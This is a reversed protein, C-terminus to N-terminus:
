LELLKMLKQKERKSKTNAIDFSSKGEENLIHPDAGGAMLAKVIPLNVNRTALHLATNGEEFRANVAIGITALLIEVIEASGSEVAAMLPTVNRITLALNVDAKKALLSKIVSILSKKDSRSNITRFCSIASFLAHEGAQDQANVQINDVRLLINVLDYCQGDIASVLPTTGNYDPINVDANKELLAIIIKTYNKKDEASAKFIYSSIAQHLPTNDCEDRANVDIGPTDLLLEVIKEHGRGAAYILPTYGQTSEAINVDAKKALLAKIIKISEEQKASNKKSYGFIAGHLASLGIDTQANVEIGEIELLIDVIESCGQSAALMLATMGDTDHVNVDAHNALLTHIITLFIKREAQNGKAFYLIASLLPTVANSACSVDAGKSILFPIVSPFKNRIALILPNFTDSKLLDPNKEFLLKLTRLLDPTEARGGHRSLAKDLLDNGLHDKTHIDGGNELLLKLLEYKWELAAYAVLTPCFHSKWLSVEPTNPDGGQALLLEFLSLNGEPKAKLAFAISRNQLTEEKAIIGQHICRTLYRALLLGKGNPLLKNAAQEYLAFTDEANMSHLRKLTAVANIRPAAFPNLSSKGDIKYADPILSRLNQVDKYLDKLYKKAEIVQQEDELDKDRDYFLKEAHRIFANNAADAGMRNIEAVHALDILEVLSLIQEIVEPPLDSFSSSNPKLTKNEIEEIIKPHNGTLARFAIYTIFPLEIILVTIGGWLLCHSVFQSYYAHTQLLALTAIVVAAVAAELTFAGVGSAVAVCLIKTPSSQTPFRSFM